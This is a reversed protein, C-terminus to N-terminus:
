MVFLCVSSAFSSVRVEAMIARVNTVTADATSEKMLTAVNCRTLTCMTSLSANRHPLILRRRKFHIIFRLRLVSWLVKKWRAAEINSTETV